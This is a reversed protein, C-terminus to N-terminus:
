SFRLNSGGSQTPQWLLRGSTVILGGLDAWLKSAAPSATWEEMDTQRDDDIQGCMSTDRDMLRSSTDVIYPGGSGYGNEFM